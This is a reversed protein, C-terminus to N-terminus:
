PERVIAEVTQTGHKEFTLTVEFRDGVEPDHLLEILMIIIAAM